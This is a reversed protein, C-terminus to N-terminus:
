VHARGIEGALHRPVPTGALSWSPAASAPWTLDSRRPCCALPVPEPPRPTWLSSGRPSHRTAPMADIAGSCGGLRSRLGCPTAGVDRGNAAQGVVVRAAMGLPEHPGA